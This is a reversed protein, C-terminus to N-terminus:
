GVVIVGIERWSFGMSMAKSRRSWTSFFICYSPSYCYQFKNIRQNSNINLIDSGQPQYILMRHHVQPHVIQEQILEVVQLCVLEVSLVYDYLSVCNVCNM